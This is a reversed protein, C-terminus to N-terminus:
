MTPMYITGYKTRRPRGKFKRKAPKIVESYKKPKREKKSRESYSKYIKKDLIKKVSNITQLSVFLDKSIERYSKGATIDRLVAIRNVITQKEYSTTFLQLLKNSKAIKHWCAEQWDRRSAYDDLSPLLHIIQSIISEDQLRNANKNASM